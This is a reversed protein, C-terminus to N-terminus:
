SKKPLYRAAYKALEPKGSEEYLKIAEEIKGHHFKDDAVLILGEKYNANRFAEIAQEYNHFELWDKGIEIDLSRKADDKIGEINEESLKVM